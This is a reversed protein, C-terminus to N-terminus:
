RTAIPFGVSTQGSVTLTLPTNSGAAVGPPFRVNVQYLGVFGPSLGAFFVEEAVVGGFRVTAPNRTPSLPTSPAPAGSIANETVAGLGTAYIILVDGAAAPNDASVVTGNAKVVVFVGPSAERVAATVTNGPADLIQARVNATGLRTDWPVQFNVQGPSVFQLPAPTGNILISLGGISTPLPLSAAQEISSALNQGYATALGGPALGPASGAANVVGGSTLLPAVGAPQYGLQFAAGIVFDARDRTFRRIHEMGIEVDQNTCGRLGTGPRFDAIPCQKVPDALVADRIQRNVRDIEQDLWGGQGGALGAARVLESLFFDRLPPLAMVRRMLVHERSNRLVDRFPDSFTNDKDWVIFQHRNTGSFRYFYFNAMGLDGLIGDTEAMYQEAAVHTLFKRLDIYDNVVREFDSDPTDTVLRLLTQIPRLDPSNEHTKPDFLLSLRSLDLPAFRFDFGYNYEYLHGNDENFRRRLWSKDVSEVVGYTGVFENNVFLRTHTERSVPLGMREFLRFSLRERMQTPDQGNADLKVSALNLFKQDTEFHDFDVRLNPKVPSRSGLGSSRIGINEVTVNRWTWICEYYTNDRFTAKLKAWDAPNIAIRIEQILDDNFFDDTSQAIIAPPCAALGLVLFLRAQSNM